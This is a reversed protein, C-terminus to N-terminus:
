LGVAFDVYVRDFCLRLLVLWVLMLLLMLLLSLLLLVMLVCLVLWLMLTVDIVVADACVADDVFRLFLLVNMLLRLFMWRLLMM